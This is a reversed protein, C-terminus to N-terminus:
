NSLPTPQLTNLGIDAVYPVFGAEHVQKAMAARNAPRTPDVYEIVLVPVGTSKTVERLEAARLEAAAPARLRYAKTKFDYDTFVSEVAFADIYKALGPLLDLGGNSVLKLTPELSHIDAILDTMARAAGPIGKEHELHHGVDVTDFFFGDYGQERLAPVLQGLVYTRWASSRPDIRYAGPWDPNPGLLAGPAAAMVRYYPRSTHVEGLSLYALVLQGPRKFSAIKWDHDPELVLLDPAALLDVSVSGGYYVAWNKIPPLRHSPGGMALTFFAAAAAILGKRKLLPYPRLRPGPM